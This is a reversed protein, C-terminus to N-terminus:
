SLLAQAEAVFECRGSWDGGSPAVVLRGAGAAAFDAFREAVQEPTGSVPVANAVKPAMGQTDVLKRVLSNRASRATKDNGAVLQVGVTIGPMPRDRKAALERLRRVGTALGDPTVISPFWGDGYKAARRLIAESGGGGVLIPPVAAGPALTLAPQHPEHELTTREGAILQRLVRLAADTRAGRDRRPVGVADWFAAGPFGGSGVGLLVRDKSVHQLAAIQAATWAVPRLPLVLVSFGVQIRDTSAAATAVAVVSELSPTGDGTMVDGVWVSEFGLEEVWRAGPGVGGIRELGELEGFTPLAMGVELGAGTGSSEGEVVQERPTRESVTVAEESTPVSDEEFALVESRPVEGM